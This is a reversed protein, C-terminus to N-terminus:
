YHFYPQGSLIAKNKQLYVQKGVKNYILRLLTPYVILLLPLAIIFGGIVFIALPQHL